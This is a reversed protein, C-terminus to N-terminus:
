GPARSAQPFRPRAWKRGCRAPAPAASPSIPSDPTHIDGNGAIVKDPEVTEHQAVTLKSIPVTQFYDSAGYAPDTIFRQSDNVPVDTIMDLRINNVVLDTPAAVDLATITGGAGDPNTFSM